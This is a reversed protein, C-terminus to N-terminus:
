KSARKERYRICYGMTCLRLTFGSTKHDSKSKKLRWSRKFKFANIRDALVLFVLMSAFNPRRYKNARMLHDEQHSPLHSAADFHLALIMYLMNPRKDEM